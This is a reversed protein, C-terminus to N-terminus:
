LPVCFAFFIAENVEAVGEVTAGDVLIYSITIGRRRSSMIAHFYKSNIIGERLWLLRSQQWCISSNIRYLSHLDSILGHLEEVEEETLLTNEGKSDLSYIREKLSDMRGPFNHTHTIHWEKLAGKMAKYKEKMMFGDWGKIQFYNWKDKM